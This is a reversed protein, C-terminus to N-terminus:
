EVLWGISKVRCGAAGQHGGAGGSGYQNGIDIAVKSVDIEPKDSYFSLNWGSFGKPHGPRLNSEKPPRYGFCIMIDHKEPDYVSDFIKSGTLMRNVCVCRLDHIMTEFSCSKIYKANQLNQYKFIILGIGITEKVIYPDYMALWFETNNPSTDSQFRMGSQFPLILPDEHDWVDYRGLLRVFEPLNEHGPYLFGHVLECGAKGTERTGAISTDVTELSSKHHDIWTLDTMSDLRKMDEPSFSFDVVWVKEGELLSDWPVQDGYDVPIMECGPHKLKILAGSCEGDLDQGHFYCKM